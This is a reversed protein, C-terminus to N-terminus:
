AARAKALLGLRTRRHEIIGKKHSAAVWPHGAAKWKLACRIAESRHWAALAYFEDTRDIPQAAKAGRVEARQDASLKGDHSAEIIAQRSMATM